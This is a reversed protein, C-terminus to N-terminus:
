SRVVEGMRAAEKAGAESDWKFDGSRLALPVDGDRKVAAYRWVLPQGRGRRLRFRAAFIEAGFFRCLRTVDKM